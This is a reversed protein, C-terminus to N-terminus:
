RRKGTRAGFGEGPSGAKLAVGGEPTAKYRPVGITANEGATEGKEDGSPATIFNDEIVISKPTKNVIIQGSGNNAVLNKRIVIGEAQANDIRIGGGWPKGNEIFTNHEIVINKLGHHPVKEGWDALTLGVHANRFAVNDHFRVNELTGNNEAALAYGNSQTEYVLNDYVEVDVMHFDWADVYIGLRRTHHVTNGHITGHKSHKADIGEGGRKGNVCDHVTNGAIEFGDCGAVTICEQSGDRCADTVDNGEVLVSKSFWVGIGSSNTGKTRCNKVSVHECNRGMVGAALSGPGANRVTLGRVEVWSLGEMHVLGAFGGALRIDKGDIVPKANPAAAFVVPANATGSRTLVLREKWTGSMLCVTTGPMAEAAAKAFTRWPKKKTGPGADNGKPSVWRETGGAATGMSMVSTACVLLPLLLGPALHKAM